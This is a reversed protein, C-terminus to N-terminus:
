WGVSFAFPGFNFGAGRYYKWVDLGWNLPYFQITIGLNPWNIKNM